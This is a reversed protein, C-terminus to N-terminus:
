RSYDVTVSDAGMLELHHDDVKEVIFSDVPEDEQFSTYLTDKKISYKKPITEGDELSFEKDSIKLMTVGDTSRWNGKLKNKVPSACGMFISSVALFLFVNGSNKM